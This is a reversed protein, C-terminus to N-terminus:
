QESDLLGLKLDFNEIVKVVMKFNECANFPFTNYTNLICNHSQSPCYTRSPTYILCYTENPSTILILINQKGPSIRPTEYSLYINKEWNQTINKMTLEQGTEMLELLITWYMVYTWEGPRPFYEIYVRLRSRIQYSEMVTETVKWQNTKWLRFLM